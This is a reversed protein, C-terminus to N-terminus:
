ALLDPLLAQIADTLEDSDVRRVASGAGTDHSSLAIVIYQSSGTGVLGTTNLV